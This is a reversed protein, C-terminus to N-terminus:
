APAEHLDAILEGAPELGIALRIPAPRVGAAELQAPTLVAGLMAAAHTVLRHVEGLSPEARM